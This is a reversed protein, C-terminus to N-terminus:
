SCQQLELGVALSLFAIVILIALGGYIFFALVALIAFIVADVWTM